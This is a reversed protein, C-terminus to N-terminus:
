QLAVRRKFSAFRTSHSRFMKSQCSESIQSNAVHPMAFSSLFITKFKLLVRRLDEKTTKIQFAATSWKEFHQWGLPTTRFNICKLRCM